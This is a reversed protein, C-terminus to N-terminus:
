LREFIEAGYMVELIEITIKIQRYLEDITKKNDITFHFSFDDLQTESESIFNPTLFRNVRVPIIETLFISSMYEYEHIFRFDPIVIHSMPTEACIKAVGTIFVNDGHMRKQEMAEYVLLERVTRLGHITDIGASKGYQTQTLEHPFRYKEATMKKLENAISLKKFNYHKVLYDAVVDKGSGCWGSIM